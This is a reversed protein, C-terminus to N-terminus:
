AAEAEMKILEVPLGSYLPMGTFPDVNETSSTLQNVNDSGTWGHPVALAGKPMTSDVCVKGKLRGHASRVMATDGDTLGAAAADDVSVFIAPRKRTAFSGSNLSRPHRRTILVLSSPIELRELQEVLILPAVRWGGMAEARRHLWGIERETAVVYKAEGTPDLGPRGRSAHHALIDQDTATDPDFGPLFDMGMRRGLQALIWWYSRVDGRPAILSPTYQAAITPFFGDVILSIDAREFHSKSPLRHTSMRVTDSEFADITAFVELKSLAALTRDTGPLCSVLNGSLNILARLNGAEIEDPIAAAPFEGAVPRLDPRSAPGPLQWGDEPAVPMDIKDVQSFFGPNVWAGGERDFSGTIMMLAWGLWQTINASRSMTVGTGLEVCLRKHRRITSLLDTLDDVAVGGIKAAEDITFPEVAAALRDTGQCHSAVYAHDAGDRLLERVLFALIAYDTGPRPAIHRTAKAATESRRPDMVWVEGEGMFDRLRATPSPLMFSHGHSVTPNTGVFLILKCRGFDPQAQGAGGTMLESVLFKSPCDITLDSYISRSGFAGIMSQWMGYCGTDMYGGGGLFFGVAHPGSEKIIASLRAALDDLAAEWNVRRVAGGGSSVHPYLLRDARDPWAAADRGKSCTYGQTLPHDVDGRVSLVKGGEV